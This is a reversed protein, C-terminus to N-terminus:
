VCRCHKLLDACIGVLFSRGLAARIGDDAARFGDALYHLLDRHEAEMRAEVAEVKGRIAPIGCLRNRASYPGGYDEQMLIFGEYGPIPLGHGSLGKWIIDIAGFQLIIFGYFVIFHMIGSKRDKFLKSQGFVQIAFQSLREKLDKKLNAPKGLRIYLYRRYVVSAFMYVAWGTIGVFLVANILDLIM